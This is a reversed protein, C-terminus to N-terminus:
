GTYCYDRCGDRTKWHKSFLTNLDEHMRPTLDVKSGESISHLAAVAAGLGLLMVLIAVALRLRYSHM